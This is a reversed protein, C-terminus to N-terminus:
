NIGSLEELIERVSTWHRETKEGLTLTTEIVERSGEVGEFVVRLDYRGARMKYSKNNADIPELDQIIPSWYWIRASGGGRYDGEPTRDAERWESENMRYEIKSCSITVPEEGWRENPVDTWVRFRRKMGYQSQEAQEFAGLSLIVKHQLVDFSSKGYVSYAKIPTEPLPIFFLIFPILITILCGWGFCGRRDQKRSTPDNM